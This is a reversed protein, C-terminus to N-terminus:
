VRKVKYIFPVDNDKRVQLLASYIERMKERNDAVTQGFWYWYYKGKSYVGFKYLNGSPIKHYNDIENLIHITMGMETFSTINFKQEKEHKTFETTKLNM